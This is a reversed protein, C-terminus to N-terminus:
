DITDEKYLESFTFNSNCTIDTTKNTVTLMCIARSGAVVEQKDRRGHKMAQNM